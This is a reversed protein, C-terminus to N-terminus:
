RKQYSESPKLSLMRLSVMGGCTINVEEKFLGPERSQDVDEPDQVFWKQYLEKEWKTKYEPKVLQDLPKTM